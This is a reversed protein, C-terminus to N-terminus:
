HKLAAVLFDFLGYLHLANVVAVLCLVYCANKVKKILAVSDATNQLLGPVFIGGEDTYGQVARETRDIRKRHRLTFPVIEDDELGNM